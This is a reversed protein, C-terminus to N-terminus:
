IKVLLHELVPGPTLMCSSVRSEKLGSQRKFHVGTESAKECRQLVPGVGGCDSCVRGVREPKRFYGECKRTIGMSRCALLNKIGESSDAFRSASLNGTVVVVQELYRNQVEVFVSRTRHLRFDIYPAIAILM